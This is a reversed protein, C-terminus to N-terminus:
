DDNNDREFSSWRLNERKKSLDASREKARELISRTSLIDHRARRTARPSRPTSYNYHDWSPPIPSEEITPKPISTPVESTKKKKVIKRSSTKTKPKQKIWSNPVNLSQLKEYFALLGKPTDEDSTVIKNKTLYLLIEVINSNPVTLGNIILENDKNWWVQDRHKELISLISSISPKDKDPILNLIHEKDIGEIKTAVPKNKDHHQHLQSQSFLKMKIDSPLNDNYLVDKTPELPKSDYTCKKFLELPIIISEKFSM